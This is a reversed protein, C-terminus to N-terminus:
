DHNPIFIRSSHNRQTPETKKNRTKDAMAEPNIRQLSPKREKKFRILTKKEDRFDRIKVCREAM